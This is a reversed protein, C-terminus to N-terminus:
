PERRPPNVEYCRKIDFNHWSPQEESLAIEQAVQETPADEITVEYEATITVRYTPM